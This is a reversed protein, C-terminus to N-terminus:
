IVYLDGKSDEKITERPKNAVLSNVVFGGKLGWGWGLYYNLCLGRICINRVLRVGSNSFFNCLRNQEVFECLQRHSM